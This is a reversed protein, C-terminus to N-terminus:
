LGMRFEFWREDTNKWGEIDLTYWEYGGQEHKNKSIIFADECDGFYFKEISFHKSQENNMDWSITINNELECREYKHYAVECVSNVTKGTPIVIEAQHPVAPVALAVLGSLLASKLINM